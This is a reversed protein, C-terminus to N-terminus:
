VFWFRADIGKSPPSHSGTSLYALEWLQTSCFHLFCNVIGKSPPSHSEGGFPPPENVFITFFTFSKIYGRKVHSGQGSSPPMIWLPNYVTFVHNVQPGCWHKQGWVSRFFECHPLMYVTRQLGKFRTQRSHPQCLPNLNYFLTSYAGTQYLRTAAEGGISPPSNMWLQTTCSIYFRTNLIGRKMTVTTIDM